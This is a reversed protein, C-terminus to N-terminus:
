KGIEISIKDLTVWPQIWQDSKVDYRRQRAEWGSAPWGDPDTTWGWIKQTHDRGGDSVLMLQADIKDLRLDFGDQYSYQYFIPVSPHAGDFLAFGDVVTGAKTFTALDKPLSLGRRRDALLILVEPHGDGDLDIHLDHQEFDVGPPGFVAQLDAVNPHNLIPAAASLLLLIPAAFRLTCSLM